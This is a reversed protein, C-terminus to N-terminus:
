FIMRLAFQIQRPSRAATMEGFRANVQQGAADFRAATDFNTFQTHNFANYLEVKFQARLREHIPINKIASIDWNHYGPMRISTRGSTGVTGVAPPSFVETRFNRRFTREGRPLNPNGSVDIRSGQSATGTTDVPTVFSYGVASPTGSSMTGVGSAQWGNLLLKSVRNKWPAQPAAYLFNMKGVHARDFSALGYNWSRVPILVAISGGDDDSFTLSKSWTYSYGFDIGKAFRRNATVQLSHYNSSGAWELQNIDNYGLMPRLFSAPLPVRTNTPDANKPNFNAGLPIPNLNRSWLLNRGLNGVYGVDLIIGKGIDQQVSFSLNIAKTNKPSSELATVAQPFELGDASLLGSFTGYFITPTSIIPVSVGPGTSGDNRNFFLGVGGRIATKGRGFPDYAFGIRPAPSISPTNYLGRPYKSNLAPVVMGNANKGSGPAIAGIAAAPYVTGSAPNVGVRRGGAMAPTILRVMKSVDFEGPVFGSVYNGRQVRAGIWYFRMGLDLTLRRNVKWSDQVYWELVTNWQTSLLRNTSETYSSFVGLMANAFPHGSDLPNNVNRGFDFTGNFNPGQNQTTFEREGSFGAKFIHAGHIKTVSDSLMGLMRWGTLPFRNDLNTNVAGTIGGFTANPIVGFPNYQPALQGVKFGIKDRSMRALESSESDNWERRGNLGVTLENTFTPNIIAAYRVVAQKPDTTYTALMQNWNAGGGAPVQYGTSTDRHFLYSLYVQHKPHMNWDLKLVGFKQPASSESNFLYNYRGAAITNDFFNPLPFINMLAVGSSDLRNAPIVNGPYALRTIPDVVPIQRGNVDLSQSFDGRRELATPMTVTRGANTSKSPWFEQGLFFFLKDRNRNFKGPIYIPGGVNYTWTNYRYRQKDIGLRNNFFSNANFQEHRKFYSGLGHFDRTGSKTIVQVNAGSYRGYEAQYNSLLIKVEAVSDQSVSLLLNRANGVQNLGMGDVSLSNADVRNGNVNGSWSRSISEPDSSSVVGPLLTLLTMVNRGRIQLNEVQSATVTGSRESSATQVVAGQATVVITEAVSGIQLQIDGSPLTEGASLNLGGQEVAKFGSAKVTIRYGGPPLNIFRFDGQADTFLQRTANTASNKLMVEAAAVPLSSPDKVSGVIIGTVTQSLGVSAFSLFAALVQLNTM